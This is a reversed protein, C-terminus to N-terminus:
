QGVLDPIWGHFEEITLKYTTVPETLVELFGGAGSTIVCWSTFRESTLVLAWQQFETSM